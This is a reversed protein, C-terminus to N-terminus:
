GCQRFGLDLDQGSDAEEKGVRPGGPAHCSFLFFLTDWAELDQGSGGERGSARWSCPLLVIVFNFFCLMGVGPVLRWVAGGMM